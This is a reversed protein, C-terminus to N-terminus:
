TIMPFRTSMMNFVVPLDDIKKGKFFSCYHAWKISMNIVFLNPTWVWMPCELEVPANYIYSQQHYNLLKNSLEKPLIGVVGNILFSDIIVQESVDFQRSTKFFFMM